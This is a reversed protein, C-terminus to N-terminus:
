KQCEKGTGTGAGSCVGSGVGFQWVTDTLVDLAEGIGKRVEPPISGLLKEAFEDLMGDIRDAEASGRVTLSLLVSRRDLESPEREILGDAVFRDVIRSVWSKDLGVIRGLEVQAISGRNRLLILMQQQPPLGQGHLFRRQHQNYLCVLDRFQRVITSTM